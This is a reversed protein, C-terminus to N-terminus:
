PEARSWQMRVGGLLWVNVGLCIMVAEVLAMMTFFPGTRASELGTMVFGAAFCLLTLVAIRLGVPRPSVMAWFSGGAVCALSSGYGALALGHSWPFAVHHCLGCGLAVATTWSMLDALSFQRAALRHPRDRAARTRLGAWRTVALPVAVWATYLCLVLFWESRRGPTVASLPGSLLAAAALVALLRWLRPAAGWVWWASLLALQGAALGCLLMLATHPADRLRSAVAADCSAAAITLLGALLHTPKM